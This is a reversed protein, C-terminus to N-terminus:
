KIKNDMLYVCKSEFHCGSRALFVFDVCADVTPAYVSRTRPGTDISLTRCTVATFGLYPNAAPTDFLASYVLPPLIADALVKLSWSEHVVFDSVPEHGFVSGGCFPNLFHPGVGLYSVLACVAGYEVQRFGLALTISTGDESWDAPSTPVLVHVSSPQM